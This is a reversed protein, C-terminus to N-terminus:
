FHQLVMIEAATQEVQCQIVAQRAGTLHQMIMHASSASEPVPTSALKQIEASSSQSNSMKEEKIQQYIPLIYLKPM